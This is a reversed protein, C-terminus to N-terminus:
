ALNIDDFVITNTWVQVFIKCALISSGHHVNTIASSQNRGHCSAKKKGFHTTFCYWVVTVDHAHMCYRQIRGFDLISYVGAFAIQDKIPKPALTSRSLKMTWRQTFLHGLGNQYSLLLTVDTTSITYLLNLWKKRAFKIALIKGHTHVIQSGNCGLLM